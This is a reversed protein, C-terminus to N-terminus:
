EPWSSLPSFYRHQLHAYAWVLKTYVQLRPEDLECSVIRKYVPELYRLLDYALRSEELGKPWEVYYIELANVTQEVIENSTLKATQLDALTKKLEELKLAKTTDGFNNM